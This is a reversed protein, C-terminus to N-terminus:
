WAHLFFFANLVLALSAWRDRRGRDDLHIPIGVSLKRWTNYVQSGNKLPSGGTSFCQNLGSLAFFCLWLAVLLVVALRVAAQLSFIFSVQRSHKQCAESLRGAM